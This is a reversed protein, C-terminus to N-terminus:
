TGVPVDVPFTLSFVTGKGLESSVEITGRHDEMIGHSISLGLGTGDSRTTFFPDFIKPLIEHPIGSGTDRVALRISRGDEVLATEIMISGGDPMASRANTLLNLLVQEIAITDAMIVPLGQGLKTAVTIRSRSMDKQVLEVMEKVIRNLAVPGRSGSSQRAFSLLGQTINAVRRAHRLIVELDNRTEPSLTDDSAELMMVEVRSTIIGIPNNIEHAIGASLTGLAALKDSQRAARQYALRESIDTVFAIARTGGDTTAYSLSIEVPFQSGSKKIGALELGKGMSRARPAQMYADRHTTHIHRHRPPVLLEVPQGILEARAYGFMEETKANVRLIRGDADVVLIGDSASEFFARSTEESQRLAEVALTRATIDRALISTGVVIQNIDRIPFITFLLRIRGAPGTHDAEVHETTRDSQVRALALAVDAPIRELFTEIPQGTVELQTLGFMQEAGPNWSLIGGDPGLVIVADESSRVLSALLSRTQEHEAVQARLASQTSQIEGSRRWTEAILGVLVLFTALTLSVLALFIQRAQEAYRRSQTTLLERDQSKMTAALSRIEEMLRLGRGTEIRQLAADAPGERRLKITERLESFKEAIVPMLASLLQRRRPDDNTLAKLTQLHAETAGTATLYPALYREDGTIIFGRQGTEADTVGSLVADLETMIETTHQVAKYEGVLRRATFAIVAIALLLGVVVAFALGMRNRRLWPFMAPPNDALVAAAELCPYERRVPAHSDCTAV